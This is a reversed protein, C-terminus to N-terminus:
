STKFIFVYNQKTKYKTLIEKTTDSVKLKHKKAESKEEKVPDEKVPEQEPAKVPEEKPAVAGDIRVYNPATIESNVYIDAGTRLNRYHM